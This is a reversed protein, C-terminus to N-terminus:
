KKDGNSDKWIGTVIAAVYGICFAIVLGLMYTFIMDLNM